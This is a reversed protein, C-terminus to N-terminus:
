GDTKGTNAEESPQYVTLRASALTAGSVANAVLCDFVGMENERYVVDATVRLRDRDRFWKRCASFNRTGLLLGVRPTRGSRLAEVGAYAGCSQAMYEIAVHAPIGESGFFPRDPDVCVEATLKEATWGIVRDLLIMPRAHPLVQEITYSIDAM